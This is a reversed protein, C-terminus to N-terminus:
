ASSPMRSQQSHSSNLRTSKRDELLEQHSGSWYHWYIKLQQKPDVRALIRLIDPIASSGPKGRAHVQLPLKLELAKKAFKQFRKEQDDWSIPSTRDLGLSLISVLCAFFLVIPFKGVEGVAMLKKAEELEDLKALIKDEKTTTVQAKPHCGIALGWGEPLVFEDLLVEQHFHM